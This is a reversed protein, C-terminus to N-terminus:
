ASKFKTTYESPTMNYLAKFSQTFYGATNFGTKHMSEKASFGKELYQAAIKLRYNRVFETPKLGTISKTKNYFTTRSMGINEALEKTTFSSNDMNREIELIVKQVFQEEVGIVDVLNPEFPAKKFEEHIRKRNELLSNIQMKLVDMNFPKILYVDAGAQLGEVRSENTTKASLLIFPIHNTSVDNKVERCVEIGDMGPMMIDSIIIDPYKERAVELGKSGEICSIVAYKDSLETAIYHNIELNDEIILLTPKDSNEYSVIEYKPEVEQAPIDLTTLVLKKNDIMQESSLHAAGLPLELTFSSGEGPKSKVRIKGGHIKALSQSFSLGIGVGQNRKHQNDAQYFRTFINKLDKSNIGLGNDTVGIAVHGEPYNESANKSVVKISIKGKIPTFKVANSLINHVIKELKNIDIWAFIKEKPFDYEISINKKDALPYFQSTIKEVSGIINIHACALQTKGQELKRFDLLQKTLKLLYDANRQITSYLKLRDEKKLSDVKNILKEVPGLILTLPSRLEHSINTFFELKATNLEKEKEKELRDFELKRKRRIEILTYQGSLFLVIFFLIVYLIKAYATSYWPPFVTVKLSAPESSWTGNDNSGYVDFVYDGAPINTYNAIRLDSSTEIWEKDFGELKYKYKNLSPNDFHLASFSLSFNNLNSDLFLHESHTISSELHVKGDISELPRIPEYMVNLRTLVTAPAIDIYANNNPTFVNIGNIGGFILEGNNRKLASIESMEPNQLGSVAYTKYTENKPNFAILGNNTGVWLVGKNDETISNIVDDPFLSNQRNYRKFGIVSGDATRLMKNLGGGITGIWLTKDESEFIQLTYNSGISTIDKPDHQYSVFTSKSIDTSNEDLKNLGNNTSLWLVGYSDRYIDRIIKGSLQKNENPSDIFTFKINKGDGTWKALGLGYGYYGIWLQNKEEGLISHIARYFVSSGDKTPKNYKTFRFSKPSANRNVQLMNLGGNETSFWLTSNNSDVINESISFVKKSSLGRNDKSSTFVNFFDYKKNKRNLFSLGGGETGIWLNGFQDEHLSRIKNGGLSNPSSDKDFHGFDFVNNTKKYIGGGNTGVWLNGTKDLFISKVSNNKLTLFDLNEFDITDIRLMGKDLTVSSLRDEIICWLAGKADITAVEDTVTASVAIKLGKHQYSINSEKLIWKSGNAGEIQSLFYNDKHLQFSIDQIRSETLTYKLAYTDQNTQYFVIKNKNYIRKVSGEKISKDVNKLPVFEMEDVNEKIIAYCVKSKFQVWLVGDSSITIKNAYSGMQPIVSDFSTFRETKSNYMNLGGDLTAIWLNGFSDTKIDQVIRGLLSTDNGNIPKFVNFSYGDFKNLGNNTGFWLFGENDQTICNIDHQSLGDKATFNKFIYTEYQSYGIFAVFLIYYFFCGTVKKM